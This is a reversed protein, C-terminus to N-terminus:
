TLRLRPLLHRLLLGLALAVAAVLLIRLLGLLALADWTPPPAVAIATRLMEGRALLWHWAVDAALAALVITLLRAREGARHLAWRLLPVALLVVALQGVEIGLNFAALASVRHGGAFQLRDGLAMAFGFGHVLGFTFALPWGHAPREPARLIRALALWLISAAITTEVLPGFWAGTPVLGLATAGITLAHAVTFATITGVLPRWRREGLVLLLLFLLHDLGGLIHQVGVPVFRRLADWPRPRLPIPGPDGDYSLTRTAGDTDHFRWQTTTRVGLRAFAPDVILREDQPVALVLAVDLWAGQVRLGPVSDLPPAAFHRTLADLADFSRDTPVAVRADVVRPERRAGSRGRFGLGPAIWLTASEHLAPGLRRLDVTGDAREPFTVDRMGELPARVWLRLTDATRVVHITVVARAPIEHASAPTVGLALLALLAAYRRALRRGAWSWRDPMGGRRQHTMADLYLM